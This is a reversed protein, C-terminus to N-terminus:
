NSFEATTSCNIVCIEAPTISSGPSISQSQIKGFGNMEFKLNMKNLLKIADRAAMGRLDPMSQKSEVVSKVIQLQETENEALIFQESSKEKISSIKVINKEDIHNNFKEPSHELVLKVFERFVPAAVDGGYYSEKSPSNFVILCIYTPNEAPFFGVFSSNYSERSYQGNVLRRTTGTKGGILIGDLAAKKGTGENVASILMDRLLQSTEHSIIKRLVVPSNEKVIEGNVGVIKKVISPQILLGGNILSAYASILQLPTVSIEYGYSISSKSVKSWLKPKRLTGKAEGPLEVNTTNGFGIDRLFPYFEDSKIRQSLKAMGINSSKALVESVTLWGEAHSDTIKVNNIFYNGNEAFIKEHPTCLNKDLLAALTITKFTSGPEYTDTLIKNRRISDSYAKFNNLDFDPANALALIEGTQPNLVLGMASAAGFREVGYKLNTELIEQISKDITLEISYGDIAPELANDIETIMKGTGDKIILRKGNLGKLQDEFIKEIGDVGINDYNLYGIVHSALSTYKYIRTPDEEYELGNIKLEKLKLASLGSVKKALVFRKSNKLVKSYLEDKPVQLAKSFRSVVTDIESESAINKNFYFTVDNSNHALLINNRDFILGRNAKLAISERQQKQAYYSLEESKIIQLHVLRWALGIFSLIIFAGLILVRNINM